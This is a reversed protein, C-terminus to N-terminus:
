LETIEPEDFDVVETHTECFILGMAKLSPQKSPKIDCDKNTPKCSTKTRIKSMTSSKITTSIQNSYDIPEPIYPNSMIGSNNGDMAIDPM